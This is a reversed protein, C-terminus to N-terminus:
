LHYFDQRSVKRQSKRLNLNDSTFDRATISHYSYVINFNIFNDISFTLSIFYAGKLDAVDFRGAVQLKTGNDIVSDIVLKPSSALTQM